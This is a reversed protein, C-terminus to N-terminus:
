QSRNEERELIGERVDKRIRGSPIEIEHIFTDYKIPNTFGM